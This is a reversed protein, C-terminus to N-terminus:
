WGGQGRVRGANVANYDPGPRRYADRRARDYTRGEYSPIAIVEVMPRPGGTAEDIQRRMDGLDKAAVVYDGPAFSPLGSGPLQMVGPTDNFSPTAALVAATQTAASIGIAVKKLTSVGPPLANAMSLAVATNAAIEALALAKSIGWLVRAARKNSDAILNASMQGAAALSGYLDAQASLRAVQRADAAARTEEIADAVAREGAERRQRADQERQEKDALLTQELDDLEERRQLDNEFRLANAEEESLGAAVLEDIRARRDQFARNIALEQELRADGAVQLDQLMREAEAVAAAQAERAAQVEALKAAQRALADSQADTAAREAKQAEAAEHAAFAMEREQEIAKARRPEIAVLVERAVRLQNDIARLGAEHDKGVRTNALYAARQEELQAVRRKAANEGIQAQRNIEAERKQLEQAAKQTEGSFVAFRESTTRLTDGLRGFSAMARDAEAAAQKQAEEAKNAEHSLVAYIGGLVALAAGVPGAITMVSQLSVGFLKGARTAGELAGSAEAVGNIVSELEPSVMGVVGSMARLASETDGANDGVERLGEAAEHAARRADKANKNLPKTAKRLTAVAKRVEAGTLDDVEKLKQILPGIDAEYTLSVRDAKAM